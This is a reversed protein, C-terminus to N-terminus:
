RAEDGVLKALREIQEKLGTLVLIDGECLPIEPDPSVLSVRGGAPTRRRMSLVSVGFRSRLNLEKLTRGVFGPPVGLAHVTHGDPVEVVGEVIESPGEEESAATKDRRALFRVGSRREGLAERGYFELVDRRSIRGVLLGAADVVPLEDASSRGLRELCTALSDSRTVTIPPAQMVDYALLLGQAGDERLLPGIEHVSVAGIPRGQSDVVHQVAAGGDTLRRVLEPLPEGPSVKAVDTRLLTSVPTEEIIGHPEPAPPSERKRTFDADSRRRELAWIGERSVRSALVFAIVATPLTYALSIPLLTTEFVLAVPTLPTRLAAAAVGAAGAAVFLPLARGAAPGAGLSAALIAFAAGLAGGILLAPFFAGGGGGTGLTAATALFKWVTLSILLAAAAPTVAREALDPLVHFGAGHVEPLVLGMAGVVLGGIAPLLWRPGPLAAGIERAIRLGGAVVVGIVGALLALIPLLLLLLATPAGDPTPFQPACGPLDIRDLGCGVLTAAGAASALPVLTRAHIAGLLVEAAFLVGALPASFLAAIGAASGAAVLVKLRQGEVAGARGAASALGASGGTGITAVAALTRTVARGLDVRGGRRGIDDTLEAVDLRAHHARGALLILGAVLGGAAPLLLGLAWPAAPSGPVREPGLLAPALGVGGLCVARVALAVAGGVLAAYLVTGGFEGGALRDVSRRIRRRPGVVPFAGSHTTRPPQMM